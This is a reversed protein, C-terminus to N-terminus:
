RPPVRQPRIRWHAVGQIIRSFPLKELAGYESLARQILARVHPAPAEPDLVEKLGHLGGCQIKMNMAHPLIRETNKLKLAFASNRRLLALLEGCSARTLPDECAIAEREAIAMRRAAECVAAQCLLAREFVCPLPKNAQRMTRLQREDM